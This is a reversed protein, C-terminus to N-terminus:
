TWISRMRWLTVNLDVSGNLCELGVGCSEPLTPYVRGTVCTKHDAFVEIVSRDVFVRLHLTSSAREHRVSVTEPETEPGLSSGQADLTLTDAGADYSLVTKERGDPSALLTLAFASATGLDIELQLEYSNDPVEGLPLRESERLVAQFKGEGYRLSELEPLPRQELGDSAVGLVRPLAMVGSWGARRQAAGTRGERLWAWMLRRNRDDRLTLAAYPYRGADTKGSSGATLRRGDFDGLTYYTHRFEPQESVLLVHRDGLRFLNPCEWMAEGAGFAGSHVVNLYEWDTLNDSRYLLVAGGVNQLGVGLVMFWTEGERWVFPDRFDPPGVLNLGEPPAAIVPEPRKQWTLLDDTSTALCQVQPDVGTYILTPTVGDMVACGSWCGDEDAGGPTPALAVPLDQWHVLDRSVAHGWGITGHFPGNPNHQYFLHTLGGTQILGNPDNLWNAPALFHYRPRHPDNALVRRQARFDPDTPTATADTMFVVIDRETLTRSSTHGLSLRSWSMPTVPTRADRSSSTVGVEAKALRM